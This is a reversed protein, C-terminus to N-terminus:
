NRVNIVNIVSTDTTNPIPLILSTYNTATTASTATTANTATTKLGPIYDTISVRLRDCAAFGAKGTVLIREANDGVFPEAPLTWKFAVGPLDHVLV